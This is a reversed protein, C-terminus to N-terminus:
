KKGYIYIADGSHSIRLSGNRALLGLIEDLDEGNTFFALFRRSAVKEDAVIIKKGFSRELDSAIDSLPINFFSFSRGESFPRFNEPSLKSLSVDGEKRDYLAIDGPTLRIERKGEASPVDMSVSGELLMMEVMTENHFSKFNFTTGHVRIDVDGAHIIFPHDPDKAVRAMVEGELFVDRSDGPFSDPWTLRSGANLTLVTGDPLVVERTQASPVSIEQWAVAAPDKHLRYGTRIALPICLLLAVVAALLWVTASSPHRRAIGLRRRTTLLLDEDAKGAETRCSDFASDLLSEVEPSDMHDALWAQVLLNDEESLKGDLYASLVKRNIDM